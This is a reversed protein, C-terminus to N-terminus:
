VNPGESHWSYANQIRFRTHGGSYNMFIGSLYSRITRVTLSKHAIAVFALLSGVTAPFLKLLGNQAMDQVFYQQQTSRALANDILREAERTVAANIGFIAAVEPVAKDVTRHPAFIHFILM